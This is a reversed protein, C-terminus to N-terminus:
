VHEEQVGDTRIKWSSIHREEVLNTRAHVRTLRHGDTEAPPDAWLHQASEGAWWPFGRSRRVSWEADIGSLQWLREIVCQGLDAM